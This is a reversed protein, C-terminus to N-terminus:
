LEGIEVTLGGDLVPIGIEAHLREVQKDDAYAIGNLSDVALKFISDLDVRIKSAAGGKTLKPHLTLKVSVAGHEIIKIRSAKAQWAANQKWARADDSMVMRGNFNRYVRNLAIPYPLMIVQLPTDNM